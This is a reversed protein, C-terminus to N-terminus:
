LMLYHIGGKNGPKPPTPIAVGKEDLQIPTTKPSYHEKVANNLGEVMEGTIAPKPPNLIVAGPNTKEYEEKAEPTIAIVSGNSTQYYYKM